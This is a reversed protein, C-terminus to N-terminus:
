FIAAGTQLRQPGPAATPVGEEVQGDDLLHLALPVVLFTPLLCSVTCTDLFTDM